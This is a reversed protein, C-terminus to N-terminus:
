SNIASCHINAKKPHANRWTKATKINWSDDEENTEVLVSDKVRHISDILELELTKQAWQSITRRTSKM